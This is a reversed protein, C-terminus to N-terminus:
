FIRLVAQSYGVWSDVEGDGTSKDTLQNAHTWAANASRTTDRRTRTDLFHRLPFHGNGHPCWEHHVATTLRFQRPQGRTNCRIDASHMMSSQVFNIPWQPSFFNHPYILSFGITVTWQATAVGKECCDDVGVLSAIRFINRHNTAYKRFYSPQFWYYFGTATKATLNM